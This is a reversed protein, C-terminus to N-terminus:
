TCWFREASVFCICRRQQDACAYDVSTRMSIFQTRHVCRGVPAPIPDSSSLLAHASDDVLRVLVVRYRPANKPSRTPDMYAYRRWIVRAVADHMPVPVRVGFGDIRGVTKFEPSDGLQITRVGEPVFLSVSFDNRDQGRAPRLYVRFILRDGEVQRTTEEVSLASHLITGYVHVETLSRTQVVLWRVDNSRLVHMPRFSVVGAALAVVLVTIACILIRRAM